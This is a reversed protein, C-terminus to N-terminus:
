LVAQAVCLRHEGRHTGCLDTRVVCVVCWVYVGFMCVRGKFKKLRDAMKTAYAELEKEEASEAM